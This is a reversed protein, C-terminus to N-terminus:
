SELWKRVGYRGFGGRGMSEHYAMEVATMEEEEENEFM